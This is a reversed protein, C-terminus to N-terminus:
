TRGKEPLLRCRPGLFVRKTPDDFLARHADSGARLERGCVGCTTTTALVLPQYGIVGELVAPFDAPCAPERARAATDDQADDPADTATEGPEGPERKSRDLRSRLGDRHRALRDVFGILETETREGVTDMADVADELIARVVNSV